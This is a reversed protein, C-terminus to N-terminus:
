WLGGRSWGGNNEVYSAGRSYSSNRRRSLFGDDDVDPTEGSGNVAEDPQQYSGELICEAVPIIQVYTKPPIYSKNM